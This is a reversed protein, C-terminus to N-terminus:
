SYLYHDNTAISLPHQGEFAYYCFALRHCGARKENKESKWNLAERNM